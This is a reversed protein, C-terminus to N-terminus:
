KALTKQPGSLPRREGSTYLVAIYYWYTHGKAASTDRWRYAVPGRGNEVKAIISPPMPAFPGDATDSRFVQYGYVAQQQGIMWKLLPGAGPPDPQVKLPPMATVGDDQPVAVPIKTIAPPEATEGPKAPEGLVGWIKVVLHKKRDPLAVDIHSNFLGAPQSDAVHILLNRCGAHAPECAANDYTAAFDRSEVKGISFDRGDRDVLPVTLVLKPQRTIEGLWYPAKPPGIDGTIDGTVQVWVQKQQASDVALKITEDFSGWPADADLNTSLSKGDAGIRAHLMPASSIINTIRMGPDLSSNLAITQMTPLAAADVEGFNIQPHGSDFISSVFGSARVFQPADGAGEIRYTWTVVGAINDTAVHLSLKARGHSPLVIKNPDVTTGPQVPTISLTVPKGSANEISVECGAPAFQYVEGYSCDGVVLADAAAALPTAIAAILVFM